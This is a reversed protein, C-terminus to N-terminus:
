KEKAMESTPDDEVQEYQVTRKWRTVRVYGPHQTRFHNALENYADGEHENQRGEFGCELPCVLEFAQFITSRSKVQVEPM